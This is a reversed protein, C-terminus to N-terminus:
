KSIKMITFKIITGINIESWDVWIKGKHEEIVASVIALGAGSSKTNINKHSKRFLGFIKIFQNEPIGNGNDKIAFEHKNNFEKYTILIEKQNKNNYNISNTILNQFVAKIWVPQCIIEPLNAYSIKTNTKRIKQILSDEVEQILKSINTKTFEIDVRGVRSLELLDEIMYAMRSSARIIRNLYDTAEEDFKDAYDELIFQSFTRISRIPEKLDHSVTYSYDELKKNIKEIEINNAKLKQNKEETEEKAIILEENITKYEENLSEYEKNQKKLKQENKELKAKAIKLKDIKKLETIDFVTGFSLIPKGHKDYKTDCQELVYKIKGTKSLLRHEIKYPTKNKISDTYAKNVKDRDDPHINNLFAEYTAVFEQPTLDFMRYIEDSWILVNNVLDLEWHGVHAIQQAEKLKRESEKIEQEAKKRDTIDRVATVRIEKGKYKYTKGHFEAYFKTGDKKQAVADYPKEYGSLINKSVLEKSEAAVIDTGFMGIFEDYTYGFLESAKQNAEICIGKESFFIAENAVESFAKLRNKSESLSQQAKKRDTIDIVYGNWIINGNPMCEPVGRGEVWKIKQTKATKIQYM